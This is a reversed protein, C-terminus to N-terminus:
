AAKSEAEVDVFETDHYRVLANVLKQDTGKGSLWGLVDKALRKDAPQESEKLAEFFSRLHKISRPKVKTETDEGGGDSEGDGSADPDDAFVTDRIQDQLASASLKVGQKAQEVAAARDEPTMNLLELGAAMSLAGVHVLQQEEETLQLLKKLRSVRNTNNYKYAEAIAKDTWGYAARLRQQNFADDIDSVQNRENNEEINLLLAQLDDVKQLSVDILFEPDHYRTGEYEFGDRLLRGANVRTFGAVSEIKNDANRRGSIPQIQGHVFLSIARKMIQEPTPPFKRGRLEEHVVIDNPDVRYVDKRKFNGNNLTKSM